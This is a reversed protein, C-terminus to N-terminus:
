VSLHVEDTKDFSFLNEPCLSVVIAWSACVHLRVLLLPGALM